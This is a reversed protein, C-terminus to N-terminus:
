RVSEMAANSLQDSADHALEVYKRSAWMSSVGRVLILMGLVVFLAGLYHGFDAGVFQLFIGGMAAFLLGAFVSYVGAQRLQGAATRYNLQNNQVMRQIASVRAECRGKCAM